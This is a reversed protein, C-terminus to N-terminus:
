TGHANAHRACVRDTVAGKSTWDVENPVALAHVSDKIHVRRANKPSRNLYLESMVTTSFEEWTMDSYENHGLTYTLNKGNHQHIIADNSAFAALAAAEVDASAYTKRHESKWVNFEQVLRSGSFALAGAVLSLM